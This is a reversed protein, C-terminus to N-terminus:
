ISPSLDISIIEAKLLRPKYRRRTLHECFKSKSCFQSFYSEFDKAQKRESKSPNDGEIMSSFCARAGLEREIEASPTQTKLKATEVIRLKSNESIEEKSYNPFCATPEVPKVRLTSALSDFKSIRSAMVTNQDILRPQMGSLM